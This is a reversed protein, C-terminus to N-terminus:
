GMSALFRPLWSTLGPVYTILIVVSFTAVMMLWLHRTIEGINAHALKAAVFLTGGVPPTYLAIALNATMIVGMHVLDIKFAMALPIFLPAAMLLAPLPEIFIGLLLLALNLMLLFVWKVHAVSSVWNAMQQAVQEATILWALAGTAGIVLMVTASTMFAKLLLDPIEKLKLDEYFFLSVALGYMVAVAAAETPTFYGSWIGGVIFVPMLLAPGAAVGARWIERGSAMKGGKDVGSKKGHWMCVAILAAASLFAPVLGAMSLTRMSVGSVFAYVLFPISLPMLLALTGAVSVLAAAFGRSYGRALMAPIVLSGIAATDAIASGSVGGFLLCSVVTVVGLGGPLWGFLVNAFEVIRKGVGGQALLEGTFVFLPVAILIFPEVGGIFSLFVSELPYQMGYAVVIGATTALLAFMLPIGALALGFFVGFIVLALM